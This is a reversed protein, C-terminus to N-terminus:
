CGSATVLLTWRPQLVWSHILHELALTIIQAAVNPDSARAAPHGSSSLSGACFQQALADARRRVLPLSRAQEFRVFSTVEPGKRCTQLGIKVAIIMVPIPM